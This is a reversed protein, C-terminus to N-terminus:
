AAAGEDTKKKEIIADLVGVFSRLTEQMVGIMGSMPSVMAALVQARLIDVPPLDKLKLIDESTYFTGEVLGGKFVPKGNNERAFDAILKIPRIPDDYGIAMATPGRLVPGLKEKTESYGGNDLALKVLTNKTVQYEVDGGEFFRSRLKNIEAVSLGTFDTFIIGEAKEVTEELRKVAEKKWPSAKTQYEM